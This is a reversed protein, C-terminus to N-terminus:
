VTAARPASYMLALEGFLAGAGLTVVKPGRLGKQLEVSGPRVVFVDVQGQNIIYLCDGEAGQKIVDEGKKRTVEQFANVIDDLSKADLHGFLVQLKDNRNIVAKISADTAADKAYVPKKYDKVQTASMGEAAVGARRAKGKMQAMRRLNEEENIMDEADDGQSTVELQSVEAVRRWTAGGAM